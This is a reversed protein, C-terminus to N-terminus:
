FKAADIRAACKPGIGRQISEPTTLLHKCCGCKGEHHVDWGKDLIDQGRDAKVVALVRRAIQFRLDTERIKSKATRRLLGDDRSLLGMYSYAKTNEPGTLVKVFLVKGDKSEQVRFTFHPRKEPHQFSEPLEVTFIADGATAFEWTIM